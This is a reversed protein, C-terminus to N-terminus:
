NGLQHGFFKLEIIRLDRQRAHEQAAAGNPDLGKECPVETPIVPAAKRGAKPPTMKEVCHSPVGLAIALGVDSEGLVSYPDEVALQVPEQDDGDGHSPVKSPQDPNKQPAPAPWYHRFHAYLENM